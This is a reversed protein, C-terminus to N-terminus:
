RAAKGNIRVALLPKLEALILAQVSSYGKEQALLRLASAEVPLFRINIPDTRQRRESGSKSGTKAM